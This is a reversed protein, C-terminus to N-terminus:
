RARPPPDSPVTAAFRILGPAIPPARTASQFIQVRVKPSSDGANNPTLKYTQYDVASNGRPAYTVSRGFTTGLANRKGGSANFVGCRHIQREIQKNPRHMETMTKHPSGESTVTIMEQRFAQLNTQGEFNSYFLDHVPKTYWPWHVYLFRDTTPQEAAQSPLAKMNDSAEEYIEPRSNRGHILQFIGRPSPTPGPGARCRLPKILGTPRLATRTRMLGRGGGGCVSSPRVAALRIVVASPDM